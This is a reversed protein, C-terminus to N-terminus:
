SVHFLAPTFRVNTEDFGAMQEDGCAPLSTSQVQGFTGPRPDADPVASGHWGSGPGDQGFTFSNKVTSEVTPETLKAAVAFAFSLPLSLPPAAFTSVCVTSEDDVKPGGVIVKSPSLPVSAFASAVTRKGLNGNLLPCRWESRPGAETSKEEPEDGANRAWNAAVEPTWHTRPTEHVPSSKFV